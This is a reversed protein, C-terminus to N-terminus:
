IRDRSVVEVYGWRIACGLPTEETKEDIVFAIRPDASRSLLFRVLRLNCDACALYLATRNQSDVLIFLAFFSTGCNILKRPDWDYYFRNPDETLLSAMTNIDEETGTSAAKFWMDERRM